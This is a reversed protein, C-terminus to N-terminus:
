QPGLQVPPLGYAEFSELTSQDTFGISESSRAQLSCSRDHEFVPQVEASSRLNALFAVNM